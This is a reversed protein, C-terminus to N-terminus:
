VKWWVEGSSGRGSGRTKWGGQRRMQRGEGRGRWQSHCVMKRAAAELLLMCSCLWWEGLNQQVERYETPMTCARVDGTFENRHYSRSFTNPNGQERSYLPQKLPTFLKRGHRVWEQKKRWPSAVPHSMFRLDTVLHSLFDQTEWLGFHICM